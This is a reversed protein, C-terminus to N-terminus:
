SAVRRMMKSQLEDSKPAVNFMTELAVEVIDIALKLEGADPIAGFHLAGNGLEKHCKIFADAVEEVVKGNRQLQRIRSGLSVSKDNRDKAAIGFHSCLGEVLLRLGSACLMYLKHTYAAKVEEYGQRIHRPMNSVEVRPAIDVFPLQESLLKRKPYLTVDDEDLGRYHEVTRYSVSDCGQCSVLQYTSICDWVERTHKSGDWEEYEYERGDDRKQTANVEHNTVRM